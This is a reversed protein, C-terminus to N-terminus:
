PWLLNWLMLILRVAIFAVVASLVILAASVPGAIPVLSDVRGLVAVVPGASPLSLHDTPLLETIWGAVTSVFSILADTIM